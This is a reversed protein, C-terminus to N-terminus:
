PLAFTRVLLAAMQGRTVAENPCYNGDGCGSTIRESALANVWDVFPGGPCPEDAFLTASCAPPTYAGGHKGMLLLVAMEGRNVDASPCYDGGGCGSTIGESAFANVWDVLPGGPCPEDVFMTASCVPPTYAGGHEGKLVFVATQARTVGNAPCYNGDGCGATIGARFISEISDHFLSGQPVDLFDAMWGSALPTTDTVAVDNLTGAALAPAFATIENSGGIVVDSVMAGGLTLTASPLFGTGTVAIPTGGSAPGSSPVIGLVQPSATIILSYSHSTSGDSRSFAYVTFDFTGPATPTGSLLGGSFTLGPPLQGFHEFGWDGPCISPYSVVIFRVSYSFGVADPQLQSPAIHCSQHPEISAQGVAVLVQFSFVAFLFARLSNARM